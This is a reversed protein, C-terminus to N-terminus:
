KRKTTKAYWGRARINSENIRENVENRLSVAIQVGLKEPNRIKSVVNSYFTNM